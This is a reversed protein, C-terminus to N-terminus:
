CSLFKQMVLDWMRNEQPLYHHAGYPPVDSHGVSLLWHSQHGPSLDGGIRKLMSSQTLVLFRIPKISNVFQSCNL